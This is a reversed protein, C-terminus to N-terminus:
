RLTPFPDFIPYVRIKTPTIEFSNDWTFSINQSGEKDLFPIVTEGAGYANDDADFLVTRVVLNSIAVRKTNIVTAYVHPINGAEYRSNLIRVSPSTPLDNVIYHPGDTIDLILEKPEKSLNINQAIIPFEGDVPVITTGSAVTLVVGRSDYATFTYTVSRPANDINKNSAMGVFDYKDTSIKLARAWATSIPVVENSCRMSCTGGCDLGAEFGNQKKDFCTPAPFLTDRFVYVCIAIVITGFAIGYIVKRQSSWDM